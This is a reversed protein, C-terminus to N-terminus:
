SNGNNEEMNDLFGEVTKSVQRTLEEKAKELKDLDPKKLGEDLWDTYLKLYDENGKQKLLTMAISVELKSANYLTDRAENTNKKLTEVCRELQKENRM